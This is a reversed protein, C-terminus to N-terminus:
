AAREADDIAKQLFFEVGDIEVGHEDRLRKIVSAADSDIFTLDALDLTTNVGIGHEGSTVVREILLADDLTM